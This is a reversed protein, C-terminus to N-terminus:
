RVKLTGCANPRRMSILPASQTLVEIGSPDWLNRAKVFVKQAKLGADMDLIAGQLRRGEIGSNPGQSAIFLVRDYHMIPVQAGSDDEFYGDYTWIDYIGSLKGRYQAQRDSSRPGVEFNSTGPSLNLFVSLLDRFQQSATMLDFISSPMLLANVVAGRSSANITASHNQIDALITAGGVNWPTAATATNNPNREFDVVAVPYDDYGNAASETITMKGDFLIDRSMIELRNDIMEYHLAIQEAVILDVRTQADYAGGYPEGPLRTFGEQPRVTDALKIYAPKMQMTRYGTRITSKGASMPSVFPAVRRGHEVIDHEVFATTFQKETGFFTKHLFSFSPDISSVLEDMEWTTYRDITGANGVM